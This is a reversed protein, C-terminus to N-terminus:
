NKILMHNFNWSGIWSEPRERIQEEFCQFTSKIPAEYDRGPVNIKHNFIIKLKNEQTIYVHFHIIPKIARESLKYSGLPVGIQAGLFDITERKPRNVSTSHDGAMVLTKKEMLKKYCNMLLFEDNVALYENSSKYKGVNSISKYGDIAKEDAVVVLNEYGMLLLVAIGLEYDGHHQFLIVGGSEYVEEFLEYNEFEVYNHLNNRNLLNLFFSTLMLSKRYQEFIGQSLEEQHSLNTFKLNERIKEVVENKYQLYGVHKEDLKRLQILIQLFEDATQDNLAHFLPNYGELNDYKFINNREYDYINEELTVASTEDGLISDEILLQVTESFEEKTLTPFNEKVKHFIEEESLTTEELLTLFYWLEENQKYKKIVKKRKDFFHIFDPDKKFEIFNLIHLM